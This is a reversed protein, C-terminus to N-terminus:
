WVVSDGIVVVNTPALRDLRREYLWYDKSLAYPIRYDPGTDFREIKKWLWPTALLVVTAVAAVALWLRADLRMANVFRTDLAIAPVKEPKRPTTTIDNAM